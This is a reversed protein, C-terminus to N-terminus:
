FFDGELTAKSIFSHFNQFENSYRMFIEKDLIGYIALPHRDYSYEPHIQRRMKRSTGFHYLSRAVLYPAKAWTFTDIRPMPARQSAAERTLNAVAAYKDVVYEEYLRCGIRWEYPVRSWYDAVCVDFYPLWWQYGWFDYVRLSNVIFKAQREQWDWAEYKNAADEFSRPESSGCGSTSLIRERLQDMSEPKINQGRWLVYHKTLVESVFHDESINRLECFTKPIHSGAVFDGSHGPVIVADQPVLHHRRLAWVAPWDQIHPISTLNHAFRFYEEREASHYWRWWDEHTYEIVRCEFGLSRAVQRAVRVEASESRGYSYTLVSDYGLQKLLVCLLRSDFGGSLPIVITRGAAWQALREVAGLCVQDLRERLVAKDNPLSPQLQFSFYKKTQWDRSGQLVLFEGAQLQRVGPALTEAGTVYGALLFELRILESV